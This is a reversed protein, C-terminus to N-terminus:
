EDEAFPVTEYRDRFMEDTMVRVRQDNEHLVLWDGPYAARSHDDIKAWWGRETHVLRKDAIAAKIWHATAHMIPVNGEATLRVAQVIDPKRRYREANEFTM